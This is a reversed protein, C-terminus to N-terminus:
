HPATILLITRLIHLWNKKAMELTSGLVGAPTSFCTWSSPTTDPASSTAMM